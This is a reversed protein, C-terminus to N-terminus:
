ASIVRSSKTFFRFVKAGSGMLHGRPRGQRQQRHEGKGSARRQQAAGPALRQGVDLAGLGLPELAVAGQARRELRGGDCQRELGIVGRQALALRPQLPADLARHGLLHLVRAGREAAARVELGTAVEEHGEREIGAM